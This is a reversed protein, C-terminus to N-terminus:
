REPRIRHTFTGSRRWREQWRAEIDNALAATYRFPPVEADNTM